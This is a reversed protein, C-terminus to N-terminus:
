AVAFFYIFLSLFRDCIIGRGRYQRPQTIIVNKMVITSLFDSYDVHLCYFEFFWSQCAPAKAYRFM